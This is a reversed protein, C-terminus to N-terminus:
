WLMPVLGHAGCKEESCACLERCPGPSSCDKVALVRVGGEFGMGGYHNGAPVGINAKPGRPGQAGSGNPRAPSPGRFGRPFNRKSVESGAVEFKRVRGYNEWPHEAMRPHPGATM